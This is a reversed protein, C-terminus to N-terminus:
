INHRQKFKDVRGSADVIKQKGSFFPHCKNCIDVKITDGNAVSGTKFTNGCACVVTVEHYNPHGENKMNSVKEINKISLYILVYM